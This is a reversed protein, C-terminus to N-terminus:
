SFTAKLLFIYKNIKVAIWVGLTAGVTNCVIDMMDMQGCATIFQLVECLVSLGLCSGVAQAPHNCFQSKALSFGLPLYLAMNLGYGALSIGSWVPLWRVTRLYNPSRRLLTVYVILFGSAFPNVWRNANAAPSRKVCAKLLVWALALAVIEQWTMNAAVAKRLSEALVTM